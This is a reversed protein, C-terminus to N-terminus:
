EADNGSTILAPYKRANFIWTTRLWTSPFSSQLKMEKTALGKGGASSESKSTQLDWFSDTISSDWGQGVLGGSASGGALVRGTSYSNLIKSKSLLGILGGSIHQGQVSATSFSDSVQSAYVDGALGGAQSSGFIKGASSSRAIKTLYGSNSILASARGVIGGASQGSVSGSKMTAYTITGGMALHGVIGGASDSGEIAGSFTNKSYTGFGYGVIGGADAGSIKGQVTCNSITVQDESYGAVAGVAGSAKLQIAKMKVNRITAGRAVVAFLGVDKATIDDFSWNSITNGNGDFHGSFTSQSSGIPLFKKNKLNINSNLKFSGKLFNRVQDLELVSCILFPNEPNGDGGCFALASRPTACLLSVLVSLFFRYSLNKLKM